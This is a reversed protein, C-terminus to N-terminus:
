PSAENIAIGSNADTGSRYRFPVSKVIELILTHANYENKKLEDVIRDVTCEDTLTLGRGLAYGLMKSVLNRIFLDKRELLVSKLQEPGDFEEGGPLVGRADIPIGKDSSRWRGLVDYNELGFGIPDMPDHCSACAPDERHAELKERLSKASGASHDEDLEPVDPPPPPPPTGLLNELVWKGRLVPSTRHPYSSVALVASMTVIGGRGSNEPLLVRTQHQRLGETKVLGYHEELTRNLFTFDSDILELLSSGSALLEQFFMIPEYRIAARLDATAYTPFLNTDPQVNRGLERTGLWQEVFRESSEAARKNGLMCLVKNRLYKPNSLQGKSAMEFLEDDPMSGWLFYSLRTALEYESVRKPAAEVNPQEVRFLFYPSMLVGQLAFSMADSYSGSDSFAEQFQKFYHSLEEDNIPRRFARPLFKKLTARAADEPSADDSPEIVFTKRSPPDSLAYQLSQSAADLYKEAHIPSLFLTEAANDFGEGGAGDAPLGAGANFYINLLDRITAAYEDRNLRRVPQPGPTFGVACAGNRLTGDIWGALADREDPTPAPLGRPPMEMSRIRRAASMWKEPRQLLGAEDTVDDLDFRAVATDGAHCSSCYTDLLGKAGVFDLDVADQAYATGALAFGILLGVLRSRCLMNRAIVVALITGQM